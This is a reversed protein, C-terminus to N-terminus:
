GRQGGEARWLRVWEKLTRISPLACNERTNRDSTDAYFAGAVVARALDEETEWARVDSDCEAAVLQADRKPMTAEYQEIARETRSLDPWREPPPVARGSLGVTAKV